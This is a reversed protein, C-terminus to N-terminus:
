EHRRTLILPSGDGTVVGYAAEMVDRPTQPDYAGALCFCGFSNCAFGFERITQLSPDEAAVFELDVVNGAFTRVRSPDFPPLHTPRFWYM